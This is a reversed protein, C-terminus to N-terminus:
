CIVSIQLNRGYYPKHYLGGNPQQATMVILMIDNQIVVNLMVNCLISSKFAVCVMVPYCCVCQFASHQKSTDKHQTDDDQTDNHWRGYCCAIYVILGYNIGLPVYKKLGYSPLKVRPHQERKHEVQM